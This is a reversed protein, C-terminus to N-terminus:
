LKPRDEAPEAQVRRRGPPLNPLAAPSVDAEKEACTGLFM